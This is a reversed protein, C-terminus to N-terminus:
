PTKGTRIGKLFRRKFANILEVLLALDIEDKTKKSCAVRVKPSKAICRRCSQGEPTSLINLFAKFNTKDAAVAQRPIPVSACVSCKTAALRVSEICSLGSTPGLGAIADMAVNLKVYDEDSMGSWTESASLLQDQWWPAVIDDDDLKSSVVDYHHLLAHGNRVCLQDLAEAATKDRENTYPVPLPSFCYAAVKTFASDPDFANDEVVSSVQASSASVASVEQESVASTYASSKPSVIGGLYHRKPKIPDSSAVPLFASAGSVSDSASHAVSLLSLWATHMELLEVCM